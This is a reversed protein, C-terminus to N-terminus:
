RYFSAGNKKRQEKSNQKRGNPHVRNYMGRAISPDPTGISTQIERRRRDQLHNEFLIPDQGDIGRRKGEGMYWRHGKACMIEPFDGYLANGNDDTVYEGTKSDILPRSEVEGTETGYGRCRRCTERKSDDKLLQDAMRELEWNSYNQDPNIEGTEGFEDIKNYSEELDYDGYEDEMAYDINRLGKARFTRYRFDDGREALSLVPDDADWGGSFYGSLEVPPWAGRM